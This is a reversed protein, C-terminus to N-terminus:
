IEDEYQKWDKNDKYAKLMKVLTNTTHISVDDGDWPMGITEWLCLGHGRSNAHLIADGQMGEFIVSFGELYYYTDTIEIGNKKCENFLEVLTRLRNQDIKQQVFRVEDMSIIESM